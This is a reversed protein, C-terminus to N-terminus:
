SVPTGDEYVNGSVILNAGAANNVAGVQWGKSFTNGSLTSGAACQGVSVGFSTQNGRTRDAIFHNGTVTWVAGSFQAFLCVNTGGVMTNGTVNVPVKNSSDTSQISDSHVGPLQDIIMNEFWNGAVTGGGDLRLVDSTHHIHNGTLTVKSGPGIDVGIAANYTNGDAGGGVDCRDLTAGDAMLVIFTDEGVGRVKSGTLTAGKSITVQGTIDLGTATQGAAVTYNGTVTKLTAGAPVGTNTADPFGTTAPPTTVPPTTVPPTTVPPTTVPPTAGAAQLAMVAKQLGAIVSEDASLKAALAAEAKQARSTEAALDATSALNFISM